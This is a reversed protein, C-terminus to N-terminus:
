STASGRPRASRPRQRTARRGVLRDAERAHHRRRQAHRDDSLPRLPDYEPPLQVYYTVDPEKDIGIPVSLQYFGPAAVSPEPSALPPKM